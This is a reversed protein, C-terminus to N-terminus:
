GCGDVGNNYELIEEYLPTEMHTDLPPVHFPFSDRDLSSIRLGSVFSPSGEKDSHARLMSCSLCSSGTPAPRWLTECSPSPM